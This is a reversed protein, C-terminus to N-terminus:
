SQTEVIARLPSVDGAANPDLAKAAMIVAEVPTVIAVQTTGRRHGVIAKLMIGHVALELVPAFGPQRPITPWQSQVPVNM